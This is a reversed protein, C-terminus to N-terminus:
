FNYILFYIDTRGEGGDTRLCHPLQLHMNVRECACGFRDRMGDIRGESSRSCSIVGICVYMCVYM